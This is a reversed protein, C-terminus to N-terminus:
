SLFLPSFLIFFTDPCKKIRKEGLSREWDDPNMTEAATEEKSNSSAYLPPPPPAVSRYGRPGGGPRGGPIRRPNREEIGHRRGAM